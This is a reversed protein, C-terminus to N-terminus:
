STLLKQYFKLETDFADLITEAMAFGHGEGDYERLETYIGKEVLAEYMTRSQNPPVVKDELGQLFLVPCSLQDAYNLPSRQNYIAEGEPWPAILSDLYKAEFKHTDRALATLEGIGYQSCGGNFTDTFALAALVTYGGASGGRIFVHEKSAMNQQQLHAVAACVDEVDFIGWQGDLAHRYSRGYGTSGRYNIDAVAFGRSTFFQIKIQVGPGTCATPGGHAMIILPPQDTQYENNTPPYYIGHSESGKVNFSFPQPISVQTEPLNVATSQVILQNNLTLYSPKLSSAGLLAVGNTSVACAELDVQDTELASIQLTELNFEHVSWFGGRNASFVITSDSTFGWTSMGFVWQPYAVEANINFLPQWQGDTLQYLNWWEDLDIAAMLTGNTHWQPQFHSCNPSASHDSVTNSSLDLVMLQNRNWPMNPHDWAIFALRGSCPSLSPSAYFSHGKELTTVRGDHTSISVISAIPEPSSPQEAVAYITSGDPSLQLDAFRLSSNTLKTAQQNCIAYIQQDSKNVAYLITESACYCLGGYEHVKSKASFDHPTQETAEGDIYAMVASRGAQEPISQLWFLRDRQWTPCALKVAKETLLSASISSPWFGAPQNTM